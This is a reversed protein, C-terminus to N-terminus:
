EPEILLRKSASAKSLCNSSGEVNFSPLKQEASQRDSGEAPQKGIVTEVIERSQRTSMAERREEASLSTEAQIM